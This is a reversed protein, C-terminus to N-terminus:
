KTDERNFFDDIRKKIEMPQLYKLLYGDAKLSLVKKVSEQDGRATLFIVPIDSFANESHLMELVQIGDCVPMEYDLLILDPKNLTIARIAAVGSNVESVDYDKALLRDMGMRITSSDDVVLIKKKTEREKELLYREVESVENSVFLPTGM